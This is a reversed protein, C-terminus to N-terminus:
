KRRKSRRVASISEKLAASVDANDTLVHAPGPMHSERGLWERLADADAVVFRGERRVPMGSKAWQQASAAGVGLYQGIAKWGKLTQGSKTPKKAMARSEVRGCWCALLAISNFSETHYSGHGPPSVPLRVPSLFVELKLARFHM